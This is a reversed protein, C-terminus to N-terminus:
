IGNNQMRDVLERVINAIARDDNTIDNGHRDEIRGDPLMNLAAKNNNCKIVMDDFQGKVDNNM